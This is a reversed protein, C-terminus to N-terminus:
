GFGARMDVYKGYPVGAVSLPLPIDYEVIRDIGNKARLHPTYPRGVARSHDHAKVKVVNYGEAHCSKVIQIEHTAMDLIQPDALRRMQICRFICNGKSRMVAEMRVRGRNNKSMSERNYIDTTGEDFVFICKNSVQMRAYLENVSEQTTGAVNELSFYTARPEGTKECLLQDMRDGIALAVTSKGSGSPGYIVISLHQNDERLLVDVFIQSLSIPDTPADRWGQVLPSAFRNSLELLWGRGFKSSM